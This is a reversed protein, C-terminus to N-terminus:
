PPPHCRQLVRMGLGALLDATIDGDNFSQYINGSIGWVCALDVVAPVVIITKGDLIEQPASENEFVITCESGEIPQLECKDGTMKQTVGAAELLERRKSDGESGLNTTFAEFAEMAEASPAPSEPKDKAWRVGLILKGVSAPDDGVLIISM